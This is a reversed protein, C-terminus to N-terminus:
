FCGTVDRTAQRFGAYARVLILCSVWRASEVPDGAGRLDVRCSSDERAEAPGATRVESVVRSQRRPRSSARRAVVSSPSRAADPGADVVLAKVAARVTFSRCATMWDPPVVRVSGIANGTSRVAAAFTMACHAECRSEASRAFKGQTVAAPRAFQVGDVTRHSKRGIM